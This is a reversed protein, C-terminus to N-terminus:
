NASDRQRKASLSTSQALQELEGKLAPDSATAKAAHIKDSPASENDAIAVLDKTGGPGDEM